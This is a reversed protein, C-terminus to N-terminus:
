KDPFSNGMIENAFFDKLARLVKSLRHELGNLFLVWKVSMIFDILEVPTLSLLRAKVDVALDQSIEYDSPISRYKSSKPPKTELAFLVTEVFTRMDKNDSM